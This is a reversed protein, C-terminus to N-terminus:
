SERIPRGTWQAVTGPSDRSFVTVTTGLNTLIEESPVSLAKAIVIPECIATLNDAKRV